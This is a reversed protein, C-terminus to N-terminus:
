QVSRAPPEVRVLAKGFNEGRMLRCFHAPANTIGEVVDEKFALLGEGQWAMAEKLFEERRHEYDYVIMPLIRTRSAMLPGLNPGPPATELNYQSVLGCLVIRGNMAMHRGMVVRDLLMGGTNDFYIDVGQPALERLRASVDERKYDICASFRAQKVVWDCKEKSGAIGIARAGRIRAIQGVMSGVAGAAASVLVTEGRQVQAVDLLGFYATMGPVGLIGLATTRPQQGAHLRHSGVGDTVWLTQLGCAAEILDGPSFAESRSEVVECIGRSPLLDGPQPQGLFHRGSMLARVYPDLSLWRARCLIQGSGIAPPPVEVVELDGPTPVGQPQRKIRVQVNSNMNKRWEDIWHRAGTASANHKPGSHTELFPLGAHLFEISIVGDGELGVAVADM